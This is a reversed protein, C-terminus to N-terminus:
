LLDQRKGAALADVIRRVEQARDKPVVLVADRTAVVVLDHAGIVALLPAGPESLVISGRSDAVVTDGAVVNGADDVPRIGPLAAWSGVDNWGFAGPVVRIGSTKEMIGYDISIAPLQPYRLALEAAFDDAAVLADLAA